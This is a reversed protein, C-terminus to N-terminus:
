DDIAAALAARIDKLEGVVRRRSADASRRLPPAANRAIDEESGPLDRATLYRGVGERPAEAPTDDAPNM